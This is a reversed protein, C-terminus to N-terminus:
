LRDCEQIEEQSHDIKPVVSVPRGKVTLNTAPNLNRYLIAGNLTYGLVRDYWKPKTLRDVNDAVNSFRLTALDVNGAISKGQDLFGPLARQADRSLQAWEGMTVKTAATLGLLQAPLANRAFLIKTGEDAHETINNVHALIPQFDGRIEHVEGLAVDVRALTDGLRRDATTRIQPSKM